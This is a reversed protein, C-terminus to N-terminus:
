QNIRVAHDTKWPAPSSHGFVAPYCVTVMASLNTKERCLIVALAWIRIKKTILIFHSIDCVSKSPEMNKKKENKLPTLTKNWKPAEYISPLNETKRTKLASYARKTLDTVSTTEEATFLDPLARRSRKAVGQANQVVCNVRFDNVRVGLFNALRFLERSLDRRLNEYFVVHLAHSRQALTLLILDLWERSREM